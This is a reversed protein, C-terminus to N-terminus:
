RLLRLLREVDDSEDAWEILVYRLQIPSVAPPVTTGDKEIRCVHKGGNSDTATVLLHDGERRLEDFTFRM